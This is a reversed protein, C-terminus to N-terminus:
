LHGRLSAVYALEAEIMPLFAESRGGSVFLKSNKVDLVGSLAGNSVDILADDMLGTILDAKAKSLKEAKLYLKILYPKGNILLGLEPNISVDVGSRSFLASAPLFWRM